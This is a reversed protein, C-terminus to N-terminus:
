WWGRYLLLVGYPTELDAPLTVEGGGALHLTLSPLVDGGQLKNGM